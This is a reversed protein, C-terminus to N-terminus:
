KVVCSQAKAYAAPLRVNLVVYAVRVMEVWTNVSISTDLSEVLHWWHKPVYLVEGPELTVQLDTSLSCM